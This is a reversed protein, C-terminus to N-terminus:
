KNGCKIQNFDLKQKQAKRKQEKESETKNMQQCTM